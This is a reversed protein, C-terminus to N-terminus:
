IGRSRGPFLTPVSNAHTEPVSNAHKKGIKLSFTRFARSTTALVHYLGVSYSYAIKDNQSEDKQTLFPERSLCLVTQKAM